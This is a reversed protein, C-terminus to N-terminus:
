AVVVVVFVMGAAEFVAVAAPYFVPQLDVFSLSPDAVEFAAFAVPVHSADALVLVEFAVVPKQLVPLVLNM